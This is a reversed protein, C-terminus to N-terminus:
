KTTGGHLSAQVIPKLYREIRSCQITFGKKHVDNQDVEIKENNKYKMFVAFKTFFM